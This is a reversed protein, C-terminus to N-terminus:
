FHVSELAAVIDIFNPRNDPHKELCKKLVHNFPQPTADPIYKTVKVM